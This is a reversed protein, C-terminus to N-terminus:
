SSCRRRHMERKERGADPGPVLDDRRRHGEDARDVGDDHAARGRNERVDVAGRRIDIRGRDLGGHGRPCLRNQGDVEVALHAVHFRKAGDGVPVAERDDLVGRM